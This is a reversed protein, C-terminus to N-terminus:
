KSRSSFFILVLLLLLLPCEALAAVDRSRNERNGKPPTEYENLGYEM